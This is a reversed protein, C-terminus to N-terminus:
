LASWKKPNFPSILLSSLTKKYEEVKKNLRKDKKSLPYPSVNTMLKTEKESIQPRLGYCNVGFQVNDNKIYGGNVGPRGCDHKHGDIKQLTDYTEKQTPFLAMQGDSWGYSCWEAGNQYASEVESYTALRSGLAKCVAKADEYGYTNGPIHFVEEKQAPEEPLLDSDDITIDVEPVPGFINKIATTINIKFFYQVGNILVLFILVAWMIIEILGIGSSGSPQPQVTETSGLSTFFVFFLILLSVLMVLQFPNMSGVLYTNVKDYYDSVNQIEPSLTTDMNIIYKDCMKKWSFRDIFCVIHLHRVYM